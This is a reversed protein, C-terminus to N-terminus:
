SQPMPNVTSTFRRGLPPLPGHAPQSAKESVRAVARSDAAVIVITATVALWFFTNVPFISLVNGSTISIAFFSMAMALMAACIHRRRKDRLSLLHGHTWVLFAITAIILVFLPVAGYRVLTNSLLDHNYLPDRPDIGRTAGYGFWTYAESNTLVDAFGHLRDSFTNINITDDSLSGGFQNLLRDTVSEIRDLMYRAGLLLTGFTASAVAYFIMTGTRTRFAFIGSAMVVVMIIGTRSTSAALAGLFIATFLGALALPLLRRTGDKTRVSSLYLPIVVFAASIAGLATPSNLTSFARVRDTFLQKIEISLGTMLYALEFDQFGWGQQVIGYLGVPAYTWLLFKFIALVDDEDNFLMPVVFILMGYLGGNATGQLIKGFSHDPELLSLFVNLLVVGCGALFLWVHKQTMPIGGIVGRILVSIIICSLLAPALGLVYYLDDMSVRGSVVMLRKFLDVYGCTVLFVFFATRPAIFALGCTGIILYLFVNALTNGEGLMISVIAFLGFLGGVAITFAGPLRTV